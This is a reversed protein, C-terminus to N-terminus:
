SKEHQQSSAMLQRFATGKRGKLADILAAVHGETEELSVGQLVMHM